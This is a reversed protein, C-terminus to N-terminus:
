RYSKFHGVWQHLAAKEPMSNKTTLVKGEANQIYWGVVEKYILDKASGVLLHISKKRAAKLM